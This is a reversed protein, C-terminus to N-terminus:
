PELVEARNAGGSPSGQARGGLGRWHVGRQVIGPCSVGWGEPSVADDVVADDAIAAYMTPVKMMDDFYSMGFAQSLACRLAAVGRPPLFPPTLAGCIACM